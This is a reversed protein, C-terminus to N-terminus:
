PWYDGLIIFGVAGPASLGLHMLRHHFHDRGVYEIWDTVSHVAGRRVRSATTYIMDFIPVGLILVPTSLAVAPNKRDTDGSTTWHIPSAVISTSPTGM